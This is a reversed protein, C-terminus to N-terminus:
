SKFGGYKGKNHRVICNAIFSPAEINSMNLGNGASYEITINNFQPSYQFVTIASSPFYDYLPKLKNSNRSLGAFRVDVFEMVSKSVNYFVSDYERMTKFPAHREFIIGGWNEM